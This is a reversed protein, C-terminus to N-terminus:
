LPWPRNAKDVAELWDSSFVADYDVGPTSQYQVMAANGYDEPRGTWDALWDYYAHGRCAAQVAPLSSLSEYILNGGKGISQRYELFTLADAPTLAYREVDAANALKWRGAADFEVAVLVKIAGPFRNWDEASWAYAGNVYGCVVRASTPINAPSVADYATIM